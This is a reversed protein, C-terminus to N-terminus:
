PKAALISCTPNNYSGEIACQATLPDAKGSEILLRMQYTKNATCSTVSVIFVCVVVAVIKFAAVIEEGESM